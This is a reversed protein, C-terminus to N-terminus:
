KISDIDNPINLTKGTILKIRKYFEKIISEQIIPSQEMLKEYEIKCMKIFINADKRNERNLYLETSILRNFKAWHISSRYHAESEQPYRFFNLLTTIIASFINILGILIQCLKIYEQSVLSNIGFNLTGTITTMLIVPITFLYNMYRLKRFSKDHLWRYCNAYDAWLILLHETTDDWNLKINDNFLVDKNDSNNNDINNEANIKSSENDESDM